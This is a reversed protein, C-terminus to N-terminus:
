LVGPALEAGDNKTIAPDGRQPLQGCDAGVSHLNSHFVPNHFATMMALMNPRSVGDFSLASCLSPLYMAIM